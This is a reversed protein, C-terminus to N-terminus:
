SGRAIAAAVRIAIAEAVVGAARDEADIKARSNAFAQNSRSYSATGRATHKVISEGTDVKTVEYTAAVQIQYIPSADTSTLGLGVEKSSVSLKMRYIPDSIAAGGTMQFIVENRVQQGVRTNVPQVSIRTLTAQVRGGGATPGYLPQVTCAALGFTAALVFLFGRAGFRRSRGHDSSLM